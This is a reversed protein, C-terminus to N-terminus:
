PQRLDVSLCCFYRSDTNKNKQNLWLFGPAQHPHIGWATLSVSVGLLIIVNAALICGAVVAITSMPLLIQLGIVLLAGSISILAVIPFGVVLWCIALIFVWTLFCKITEGLSWNPFPLSQSITMTQGEIKALYKNNKLLYQCVLRWLIRNKSKGMRDDRFVPQNKLIISYNTM